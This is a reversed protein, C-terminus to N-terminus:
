FSMKLTANFGNQTVGDGFQGTYAVGLTTSTGILVELGAELLAADEAIPAGAVSFNDSGVFAQTTLPIIDGFAHRWGAMGRLRADVEGLQFPVSARLGLTTFTTDMDSGEVALAASGGREGFGDTHLRVYALNAFPEFAAFATDFRWGLEGFAQFTGADYDGKLQDAYGPFLVSRSTEMDQWTYAIGTRLGVPGWQHGAYAGVHWNDSDGSSARGPVDFSTYSYGGVVGLRWDSFLTDAGILFGGTDSSLGAANGNGDMDTWAGFGTTWLAFREAAPAVAKLPMSADAAGQVASAGAPAAYALGGATGQEYAVVPMPSAGVGGFAARLRGTMASRILGSQEVLLGKASAHAEGSLQDFALRADAATPLFLIANYLGLEPGSQPLTDLAAATAFQNPTIAAATFVAPPTPPVPPIPPIPDQKVAITIGLSGPASVPTVTLFVSSTTMEAFAGSVGGDATLIVYSQGNQYSVKPDLAAVEVTGGNLFAQGSAAVLDTAGSGAIEVEYTSGPGFTIDGNIHLTGISNGPAVVAGTGVTTEGVTGNGGLTAGSRVDVSGGLSGNVSLLGGLVTTTGTFGSGDGSYHLAGPGAKTLSGAGALAATLNLTDTFDALVAGDNLIGAADLSGSLGGDGLQLTSRAAIVVNGASVTGGDVVSLGGVYEGCGCDEDGIRIEGDVTLVSGTGTVRAAAPAVGLETAAGIHLNEEVEVRGGAEVLLRGTGGGFAGGVFLDDEITWRSGAGSVTALPVVDDFIASEIAAVSHSTLVGGNSVTLGAGLAILTETDTGAQGGDINMEGLLLLQSASFFAGDRVNLTGFVTAGGGFDPDGNATFSAGDGTITLIGCDCIDVADIVSNGRLTLAGGELSLLGHGTLSGSFTTASGDWGVSLIADDELIVTGGGDAGDALSGIAAFVNSAVELRGGSGVRHESGGSLSGDIGARLTGRSIVTAGTYDSSGTLTQILGDQDVVFSGTGTIAGDFTNTAGAGSVTLSGGDLRVTGSGGPYSYLEAITVDVDDVLVEAGAAVSVYAGESLATDSALSLVGGIVTVTGLFDNDGNLVQTAAGLKLLAPAQSSVGGTINGSYTFSGSAATLALVGTDRLDVESGSVGDLGGVGVALNDLRLTAGSVTLNVPGRGVASESGALITGGAIITGGSYSNDGRLVLTGAGQKTLSWSGAVFGAPPTYGNAVVGAEDAIDDLVAQFGSSPSFTLNGTGQLFLGSGFGSGAGGSGSGGQVTGMEITLPGEVTLGGGEMVFIAGGMGAGGGGRSPTGGGGGFGGDGSVGSADAGGGGGYGGTGARTNFAGGGGGGFGGNGGDGAANGGGGGGGGWGGSGGSSASGSVGSIGGGGGGGRDPVAVLGRGGGGADAGGAGGNNGAGGGAVGSVIGAGGTQISDDGGLAGRGIGGGGGGGGDSSGGGTGGDGGMGGGGGGGVFGLVSSGGDGGVAGNNRLTVNSVSVDAGANVFLAGGLGAGGGGGGGSGDGGAGGQAVANEITLNEIRVTGSYVFLGRYLDNGSLANGTGGSITINSQIAPLDSALTVTANSINFQIVHSGSGVANADIIAQRLSGPGSDNNNQVVFTIALAPSAAIVAMLALGAM